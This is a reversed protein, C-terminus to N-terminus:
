RDSPMESSFRTSTPSVGAGASETPDPSQHRESPHQRQSESMCDSLWREKQATTKYKISKKADIIKTKDESGAVECGSHHPDHNADAHNTSEATWQRRLSAPPNFSNTRQPQKIATKKATKCNTPKRQKCDNKESITKQLKCHQAPRLRGARHITVEAKAPSAAGCATNAENLFLAPQLNALEAETPATNNEHRLGRPSNQSGGCPPAEARVASLRHKDRCAAVAGFMKERWGKRTAALQM